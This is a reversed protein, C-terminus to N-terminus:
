SWKNFWDLTYGFLKQEHVLNDFTHNAKPIIRLEKPEPAAKFYRKSLNTMFKSTTGTIILVPVGIKHVSESIDGLKGFENYMRSGVVIGFDEHVAFGRMKMQSKMKVTTWIKQLYKPSSAEWLAVARVYKKPVLISAVGGLSHGILGIKEFGKRRAFMIANRLDEVTDSVDMKTFTGKSPWRGRPNFRLFAYGKESFYRASAIIIHSELINDPFGNAFIL